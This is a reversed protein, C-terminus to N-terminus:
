SADGDGEDLGQLYHYCRDTLNKRPQGLTYAVEKWLMGHLFRLRLAMGVCEDEISDLHRAVEQETQHLSERLEALKEELSVIEVVFDGTKDVVGPAHPMGTLAQAGPNSRARLAALMSEAREVRKRLAILNNLEKRTIHEM